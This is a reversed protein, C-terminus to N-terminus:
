LFIGHPWVLLGTGFERLVKGTAGDIELIPPDSRRTAYVRHGDPDVTVSSMEWDPNPYPPTPAWDRGLAYKGKAAPTGEGEGNTKQGSAETQAVSCAGMTAALLLALPFAFILVPRTWRTKM